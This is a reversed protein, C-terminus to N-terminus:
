RQPRAAKGVRREESRCSVPGPRWSSARTRNEPATAPRNERDPRSPRAEIGYTGTTPPSCSPAAQGLQPTSCPASNASRHSRGPPNTEKEAVPSLTTSPTSYSVSSRKPTTSTKRCPPPYTPVSG